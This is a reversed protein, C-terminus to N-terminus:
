RIGGLAALRPTQLSPNVLNSRNDAGINRYGGGFSAVVRGSAGRIPMTGDAFGSVVFVHRLQVEGILPEAHMPYVLIFKYVPRICRQGVNLGVESIQSVIERM